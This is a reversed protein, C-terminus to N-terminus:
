VDHHLITCVCFISAPHGTKCPKLCFFDTPKMLWARFGPQERHCHAVLLLLGYNLSPSRSPLPRLICCYVMISLSLSPSCPCPGSAVIFWLQCLLLALALAQHLLLGYNLSPPCPPLAQHLLLGYNLSPPHSPLPDIYCYVM